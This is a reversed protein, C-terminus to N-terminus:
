NTDLKGNILHNYTKKHDKLVPFLQPQVLGEPVKQEGKNQKDNHDQPPWSGVVLPVRERRVYM